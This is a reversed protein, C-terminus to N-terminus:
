GGGELYINTEAECIHIIFVSFSYKSVEFDQVWNGHVNDSSANDRSRNVILNSEFGSTASLGLLVNALITRIVVQRYNDSSMCMLELAM